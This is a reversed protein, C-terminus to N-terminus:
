AGAVGADSHCLAAYTEEAFPNNQRWSARRWGFQGFLL